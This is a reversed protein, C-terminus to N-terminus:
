PAALPLVAGFWCNEGACDHLPQGDIILPQSQPTGGALSALGIHIQSCSEVSAVSGLLAGVPVLTSGSRLDDPISALDLHTIDLRWLDGAPGEFELSMAAGAEAGQVTGGHCFYDAADIVSVVRGAVPSYVPRGASSGDASAIDLAFTAAHGDDHPGCRYGCIVQWRGDVPLSVSPPELVVTPSPDIEAHTIAVDPSQTFPGDDPLAPAVGARAGSVVAVM